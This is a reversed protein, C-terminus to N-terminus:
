IGSASLSIQAFQERPGAKTPIASIGFGTIHGAKRLNVIDKGTTGMATKQRTFSICLYADFNDRNKYWEFNQREVLVM